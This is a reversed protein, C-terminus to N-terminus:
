GSGSSVWRSGSVIVPFFIVGRFLTRLVRGLYRNVLVALMLALSMKIATDGVVFLVTTLV